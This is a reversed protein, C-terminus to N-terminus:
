EHLRQLLEANYQTDYNIWSSEQGIDIMVQRLVYGGLLV